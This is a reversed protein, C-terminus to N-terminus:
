AGSVASGDSYEVSIKPFESSNYTEQNTKFEVLQGESIWPPFADLDEDVSPQRTSGRDHPGSAFSGESCRPVNM